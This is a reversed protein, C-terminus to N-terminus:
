RRPRARAPRPGGGAPRATRARPCAGPRRSATAAGRRWRRAPRPGSGPRRRRGRRGVAPRELLAVAEQARDALLLRGAVLQPEPVRDNRSVPPRTTSARSRGARARAPAARPRARRSRARVLGRGAPQRQAVDRVRRREGALRWAVRQGPAQGLGGLLLDPVAGREDPRVAVVQREVQVAPVQGAERRAALLPRRDEGELEGLEVEQGLEVALRGSSSSSSTNLSSSGRAATAGRAACRPAAAPTRSWSWARRGPGPAARPRGRRPLHAGSSPALQSAEDRGSRRAGTCPSGPRDRSRAARRGIRRSPSRIGSAARASPGRPRAAGPAPSRWTRPSRRRLPDRGGRAGAAHDAELAEGDVDLGVRRDDGLLQPQADASSSSANAAAGPPTPIRSNRTCTRRSPGRTYDGSRGAMEPRIDASGAPITGDGSWPSRSARM